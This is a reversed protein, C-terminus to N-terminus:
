EKQRRRLYDNNTEKFLSLCRCDGSGSFSIWERMKWGTPHRGKSL